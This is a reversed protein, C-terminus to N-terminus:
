KQRVVETCAFILLRTYQLTHLRVDAVGVTGYHAPPPSEPVSLPKVWIWTGSFQRILEVLEEGPVKYVWVHKPLWRVCSAKGEHAQSPPM